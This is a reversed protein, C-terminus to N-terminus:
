FVTSNQTEQIPDQDDPHLLRVKVREEADVPWFEGGDYDSAVRTCTRALRRADRAVDEIVVEPSKSGYKGIDYDMELVCGFFNRRYPCGIQDAARAEFRVLSYTKLPHEAAFDAIAQRCDSFGLKAVGPKRDYCDLRQARRVIAGMCIPVLVVLILLKTEALRGWRTAIM